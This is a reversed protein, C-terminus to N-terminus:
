DPLIGACGGARRCDGARILDSIERLLDGVSASVCAGEEPSVPCSTQLRRACVNLVLVSLKRAARAECSQPPESLLAHCAEIGPLGLDTLLRDACPLVWETFGPAECQRRWYGPGLPDPVCPPVYDVELLPRNAEEPHERSDFRKVTTPRGEDGALLWGDNGEPDDIWVQVDEVMEPTSGWVYVGPQDVLTVARAVPDFDGGPATWYTDDFRRHLWTADGPTSPAGGGGGAVSTGEGWDATLRHLRVPAPGANTASMSLRLVARTITSGPPIVSAVDFAIVARRIAGTSASIRGAFLAPGSGNALAGTPNEILTADGAPSLTASEARADGPPWATGALCALGFTAMRLSVGGHGGRGM